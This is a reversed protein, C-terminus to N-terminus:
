TGSAAPVRIPKCGASLRILLIGSKCKRRARLYVGSDGKPGIKFDVLLEVDGYNKDTTPYVGQGDNIM